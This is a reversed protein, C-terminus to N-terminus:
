TRVCILLHISFMCGVNDLPFSPKFFIVQLRIDKREVATFEAKAKTLEDNLLEYGNKHSQFSNELDAMEEESKKM